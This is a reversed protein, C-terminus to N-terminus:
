FKSVMNGSQSAELKAIAINQRDEGPAGKAAREGDTMEKTEQETNQGVGAAEKELPEKGEAEKKERTNETEVSRKREKYEQSPTEGLEARLDESISIGSDTLPSQLKEPSRCDTSLVRAQQSSSPIGAAMNVGDCGNQSVHVSMGSTSPAEENDDDSNESSSGEATGLGEM